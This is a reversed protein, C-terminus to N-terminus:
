SAQGRKRGGTGKKEGVLPGHHAGEDRGVQRHNHRIGTLDALEGTGGALQGLGILEVGSPQSAKGLDDTGGYAVWCIGQGLFQPRQQVSPTLHKLHADRLLVSEVRGAFRDLFPNRRM